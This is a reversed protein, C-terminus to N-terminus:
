ESVRIMDVIKATGTIVTSFPPQPQSLATKPFLEGEPGPVWVFCYLKRPCPLSFTVMIGRAMGPIVLTKDDDWCISMLPEASTIFEKVL